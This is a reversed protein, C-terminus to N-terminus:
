QQRWITWLVFLGILVAMAGGFRISPVVQSSDMLGSLGSASEAKGGLLRIAASRIALPSSIAIGGFALMILAFILEAVFRILGQSDEVMAM